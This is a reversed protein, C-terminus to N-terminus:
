YSDFTSEFEHSFFRVWTSLSSDAIHFNLLSPFFLNLVNLNIILADNMAYLFRLCEDRKEGKEKQGHLYIIM